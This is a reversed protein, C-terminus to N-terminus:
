RIASAIAALARRDTVMGMHDVGSVLTVPVDPRERHILPAFRDAYLLEDESGVLVALPQKISSLRAIADQPATFTAQMRYSYTADMPVSAHPDIAFAIIPLGNFSRVGLRNLFKIAIIRGAFPTVWGGAYPRLTEGGHPMAPSLVVFRKFLHAEPGEAIRLVYAGGSSHGALILDAHPHLPRIIGVFDALDDDLQGIYDIDGPRGDHGHGRLDPVYVTDGIANLTKAVAHMGSSEGSSGHILMVVDPGTGPYLRYSLAQGDRAEFHQLPPLDSFDIRRMPDSVSRLQAPPLATGFVILGALGLAAVAVIGGAIGAIWKGVNRPAQSAAGPFPLEARNHLAEGPRASRAALRWLSAARGLFVGSFIGYLASVVLAFPMQHALRPAYVLTVGVTYKTFFIGMILVLPLTSGPIAFRGTATEYEKGVQPAQALVWVTAAAAALGWALLAVPLAGFGSAAGGISLAIMALPVLFARKFGVRRAALQSVGLAVLALFLIYLWPPTHAFVQALSAPLDSFNAPRPPASVSPVEASRLAAGFVIRAALGILGMALLGAVIGAILKAVHPISRM